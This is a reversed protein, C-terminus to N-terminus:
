GQGGRELRWARGGDALLLAPTDTDNAPLDIVARYTGSRACSMLSVSAELLGPAAPDPSRGTGSVLCGELTGSISGDAGIRLSGYEGAVDVWNAPHDSRADRVGWFEGGREAWSAGLRISGTNTWVGQLATQSFRGPGDIAEMRATAIQSGAFVAQGDALVYADTRTLIEGERRLVSWRGVPLDGSIAPLDEAAPATVAASTASRITGSADAFRLFVRANAPDFPIGTGGSEDRVFVAFFLPTNAPMISTVSPGRPTICVSATNIQCLELSLPLVVSGTDITTTLTVEGPGASGDGAGINVAAATMFQVRGPAAIRIVGDGSPTASISLIDPSPEPGITLYVSNVGIIPDLSANECTIVPLFSYGEDGTEAVPTLGLVFSLAGGNPIDFMPNAAGTAAGNADIRRYELTVPAGDPTGITCSQAPSSSRSVVSLFASIVPGGVYGSRAAPLTSAVIRGPPPTNLRFRAVVNRHTNMSVACTADTSGACPGDTWGAFNSGDAAVATLTLSSGVTFNATCAQGCDIGAPDSTVIGSGVGTLSLSLARGTQHEISFPEAATNDNGAADIAAGAGIDVTVSSGAGPTITAAYNRADSATFGSVTGNGAVLDSANFGTVDESFTITVAFPGAVPAAATSAITVSPATNDLTYTELSGSPSTGSLRNGATDAIDNGAAVALSIIGDAGALDGGSVTVDYANTAIALIRAEPGGTVSPPFALAAVTVSTVGATTGSVTFDSPDLESVAESFSVRWTLTDANTLESSPTQRVISVLDPAVTDNLVAYSNDNAGTPAPNALTNGASDAIGGSTLVTLTVTGNLNALDGGSVTVDVANDATNALGTVTATTGAVSFDGADVGTVTEGFTVRWTLTDADTQESAPSQRSISAIRPATQDNVVSYASAATSGNGAADNAADAAVDVTVDGDAAPTVTATYVTGSGSLDSATGNGVTIDGLAFGTVDESFTFTATFAGSVPGSPGTIALTPATGDNTVSFQTAATSGNGAADSAAQAAVDITVDGDGAPTITATYQSALVSSFNSVTGNGVAIDALAFGTVDESFTFTATFAGSVPGSPGTITVSPASGDSTVSFQTAAASGNGAADSAADAAVDLTVTGDASPTITATYASGSGAFDSASGNAVVIDGLAFGSVDESFTFNATFAGSVPGDPGSIDLTPATNDYIISFTESVVNPNGALDYAEFDSVRVTVSGDATPTITASYSDEAGSFESVTANTVYLSNEDFGTVDESFTFTVTFAGSVPGSPGSIEASPRLNDIVYSNENVGQVATNSVRNGVADSIDQDVAFDLTVTGNYATDAFVATVGITTPSVYFLNLAASTGLVSFDDATDFDLSALDIPESFTVRWSVATSSTPSTAPTDREISAVLPAANDLTYTENTAPTDTSVANGAADAITNAGALTLGVVGNLDALNGGSVTLTYDAGSGAIVGTATTGTTNFDVASVNVVTESFTISFVLTDANTIADSPTLRAISMVGPATEDNTVSFQPAAASGNGAADSAANAAVDLTVAGDGSPTITATYQSALVSAFNSATGNGVTIDGLAFGSVDESFTFTATFAGAVPGSPGTIDLTPATGDYGVSFENSATSLNGAADSAAANYSFVYVDGDSAPTVTVTYVSASSATFDSASGNAVVVDSADFGIVDESFTFTATFAANVPGDPGSVVVGPRDIDAEVSFSAAGNGRAFADSAAGDAVSVEVTGTASLTIVATYESASSGQFNQASGNTVSIDDATFGSVDESFSFTMAFSDNVPGDPGTITLVPDTLDAGVTLTSAAANDNGAADQAAGAAVDITVDGDAAPTVTLAYSLGSGSFGSATGNGVVVDGLTFGTVTESFTVNVPFAATVSSGDPSTLLITPGTEDNTVSFQNAATSGNGAADSAADAAVDVTVAGDASPTITATYASGSGALDSASGNAVVIDGLAFGSVDESFTFNATFAGSVPGDPGSIDLTPATEDYAVSFQSAASNGNGAADSVADAAVNVTVTGDASPTVTVTYISGSGSLGSAAGNAVSIDGLELGTVDESFTFTATFAGSVPGAPGTIAVTPATADYTVSYNGSNNLNGAADSAVEAPVFILVQGEQNPTITATYVAGSGAFDSVTSRALLIDGSDFGTVSESFTFTATFAGNVPGAPGTVELTPADLDATFEASSLAIPNGLLDTVAAAGISLSVTGSATPTIRASYSSQSLFQFNSVTAGTAAIDGSSFGTVDESFTFSVTVAGNVLASPVGITVTPATADIAVSLTDTAANGNGAADFVADEGIGVTTDGDADPLITAQFYNTGAEVLASVTGNTVAIDEAAFDSVAESFTVDLQFAGRAQSGNPLNLTVLPVTIDYNIQFTADSELTNGAADTVSAFPLAVTVSGEAAPVIGVSYVVAGDPIGELHGTDELRVIADVSGNGVALADATFDAVDESFVFLLLFDANVAGDPGQISVTPADFDAIISFVDSAANPNGAEDEAVGEAISVTVEGSGDPIISVTFDTGSGDFDDITGNTVDIDGATFGVAAQDTFIELAFTSNVAEPGSIDYAIEFALPTNDVEYHQHELGPDRDTMPNGALDAFTQTDALNLYVGADLNALDGGSATVDLQSASVTSVTLTASTGMVTFNTAAPDFSVDEFFTVRWTLSDANTFEAAPSHRMISAVTPAVADYSVSYSNSWSNLNGAADQALNWPVEIQITASGTPTITATYEAGSGAFNSATAGSLSLDEVTFGTVDESFTFTATFAANVPGAPGTIEVTPATSDRIVSFPTAATNTNGVNDSAGGAEVTVEVAGDGSPFVQASYESASIFTVSFITGNSVGVDGATFGSVSESFTFTVTFNGQVPGDPGSITVDPRTNDLTYTPENSGTVSTNTLALGIADTINQGDAFSLTITGDLDAMDGGSVTVDYFQAGTAEVSITGTTGDVEFDDASVNSVDENFSVGWTVSDASTDAVSPSNRVIQSVAPRIGAQVSYQDAADNENGAVDMALGSAVNILVTINQSVDPTITATYTSDSGAFNSLTANTVTVDGATFGSVAESFTFTATFAEGVPGAPGSIVLTPATFDAFQIWPLSETNANGAADAAVSAPVTLSFVGDTGPTVTATYSAGSGAFDSLSANTTTIDGVDFGTVSETFTFSATVPGNVVGAPASIEVGPQTGDMSVSYQAAATNANGAGDSAVGAGTDVTVSGDAAPTVTATYTTGSGAFDSAAGNGVTINELTFGTVSESFTFTATFAGAVPGAPGSISLGPATIDADTSFQAAPTNLNGAIDVAVGADVDVTVAGDADPTITASYSGDSGALGSASGNGVTIDDLTFGSVAETFSFSVTFPGNVPGAPGSITLGPATLDALTSFVIAATNGNGAADTASGANVGLLVLGEANPTITATYVAGSGAFNSRSANHMVIDNIDFGTVSESFTFTATFDGNVAPTQGTIEVSPATGDATVSFQAAATNVSGNGDQAIGAGVDVTVAGDAVPTITATYTSGSGAFNSPAGNGVTLDDITFGTVSESFTFTATFAGAVPGGPGTIELSPPLDFEFSSVADDSQATIFAFPTGDITATSVKGLGTLYTEDTDAVSQVHTLAGDSAVSFVSFGNENGAVLLYTAGGIELTDVSVAGDLRMGATDTVNFVNTLAGDSAVSFVSVGDDDAGTVFLYPTGDVVATALGYAGFLELAGGDAYAAVHSLHGTSAVSYVSFGHDNTGAAFLYTAGDVEVTTANVIGWIRSTADDRVTQVHTLSGNAALSFVSLGDFPGGVFLYPTGDVSAATLAQANQIGFTANDTVNFLNTLGGDNGVEFVSVGNDTVAASFLYTTGYAELTAFALLGDLLLTADDAVNEVSALTGDASVSFVSIGDDLRGAVFLYTTSDVVATASNIAGDLLRDSESVNSVNSLSGDNAVSFASVGDDNAGGAFLHTTGNVVATSVSGAGDLELSGADTVNFVNTLSGDNAVSFVSIGDDALGAVFLYTTVDVVATTVSYAHQLELAGSDNVNFVNTLSGDNGVSFVSVGHELQSAAFLYTTGNVVATTLSRLSDIFLSGDDTVNFVNTLAGDNAVSFVSLGDDVQSGAFLYTTGNVVAATVSFAGDLELLGSDTVNSVNTLSGDNAVSFVSIGDDDFATVFLYTTGNVVATSVSSAGDLELSGGDPVNFVNTLSGDNAVSFVSVGDDIRGGVFLYTTGNVVATSVSSAGDLELSGGDSVNFVNTLSGNDAVSFVGVGDDAEAAAFLYTTGNVVATTVSSVGDLKEDYAFDRVDFEQAHATAFVLGTLLCIAAVALRRASKM